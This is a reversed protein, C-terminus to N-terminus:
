DLALGFYAPAEAGPVLPLFMAFPIKGGPTRFTGKKQGLAALIGPPAEQNGLLEMAWLEGGRPAAALLFDEGAYFAAFTELYALASGEQIVGGPPLLSRRRRAYEAPDIRELAAPEGARWATESVFSCTEYGMAAYMRRQTEGAPMLLIGEYGLLGLQQRTDEMLRRCLGRRRYDPHTAVAYLYALPRGRCSCDFWYLAALVQGRDELCRCRRPDYGTEFFRRIFATEDGFALRWLETLQPIRSKEPTVIEM